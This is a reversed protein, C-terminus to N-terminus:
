FHFAIGLSYANGNVNIKSQFPRQELPYTIGNSQVSPQEFANSCTVVPDRFLWMAVFSVRDTLHYEAGILTLINFSASGSESRSKAEGIEYRRAGWYVGAGGGILLHFTTGTFPLVFQASIESAYMRFGDVITTQYKDPSEKTAALMEFGTQLRITASIAYSYTARFTYMSGMDESANRETPDQSFPMTFIQSSTTISGHVAVAHPREQAYAMMLPFLFSFSWLRLRISSCGQLKELIVAAGSM